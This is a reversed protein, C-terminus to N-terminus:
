YSVGKQTNSDFLDAFGPQLLAPAGFSASSTGEQSFQSFGLSVKKGNKIDSADNLVPAFDLSAAPASPVPGFVDENVPGRVPSSHKLQAAFVQTLTSPQRQLSVPSADSIVGLPKRESPGDSTGDTELELGMVHPPSLSLDRDSEGDFISPFSAGSLPGYRVVARNEKDESRDFMLRTNNEKDNEDETRDDSSSVGRQVDHPKSPVTDEDRYDGTDSEDSDLIRDHTRHKARAKIVPGQDDEDDSQNPQEEDVLADAGDIEMKEYDVKDDEKVPTPSMSGRAEPSWDSDDEEESDRDNDVETTESKQAKEGWTEVGKLIVQNRQVGDVPEGVPEERVAGGLRRWEEEKQKVIASSEKEARKRLVASLFRPDSTGHELLIKQASDLDEKTSKKPDLTLPKAHVRAHGLFMRKGKTTKKKEASKRQAEIKSPPLIELDDDDDEEAETQSKQLQQKQLAEIKFQALRRKKAQAEDEGHGESGKTPQLVAGFGPLGSSDARDGLALRNGHTM